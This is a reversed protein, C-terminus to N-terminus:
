SLPVEKQIKKPKSINTVSINYAVLHVLPTTKDTNNQLSTLLAYFDRHVEM